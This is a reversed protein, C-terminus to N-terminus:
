QAKKVEKAEREKAQEMIEGNAKEAVSEYIEKLALRKTEWPLDYKNIFNEITFEFDKIAISSM